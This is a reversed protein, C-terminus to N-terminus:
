ESLFRYEVDADSPVNQPPITLNILESEKLGLLETHTHLYREAADLASAANIVVPQQNHLVDRVISQKDRIIYANSSEDFEITRQPDIRARRMLLVARRTFRRLPLIITRIFTSM